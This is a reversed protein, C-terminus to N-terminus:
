RLYAEPRSAKWAQVEDRISTMTETKPIKRNVRYVGRKGTKSLYGGDTLVKRYIDVTEPNYYIFCLGNTAKSNLFEILQRRSVLSNARRSNFFQIVLESLPTEGFRKM